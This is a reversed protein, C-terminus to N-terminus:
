WTKGGVFDGAAGIFRTVEMSAWIDAKYYPDQKVMELAEEPSDAKLILLSGVVKDGDFMPGALLYTDITKEVHALHDGMKQQRIEGPADGPKDKCLVMYGVQKGM